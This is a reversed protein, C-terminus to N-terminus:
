QGQKPNNYSTTIIDTLIESTVFQFDQSELLQEHKEDLVEMSYELSESNENVKVNTYRFRVGEFEGGNIYIVQTSSETANDYLYDIKMIDTRNSYDLM